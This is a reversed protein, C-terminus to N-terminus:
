FDNEYGPIRRTILDQAGRAEGTLGKIDLQLFVGNTYIDDGDSGLNGSRLRRVVVRFGWCCSDYQLGGFADLTRNREENLAYSWRGVAHWNAGLAWAFSLNAQEVDDRLAPIDRVLRYEVNVVSRPDPQYRLSVAGKRTRDTSSDYQVGARLRWQAAPRAELEAVLDSSRSTEPLADELTVKRDRFHHIRGISARAREAGREDLVRSTLAVALQNADGIRDGGLFRNGRFLQEFSIGPRITDFNPLENQREYPVLLYHLRPEITHTFSRGSLTVPRELFLGSDLSFSALTRTHEDDLHAEDDARDLRYGTFRLTAKPRVFAAATHYPFSVSPQLDVRTGATRVDHDFHAIEAELGLNAARNREARGTRFVARPIQAYPRDDSGITRDLTMLDQVRVLADWGDGLWTADFRRPLHSRRSQPVDESLDELYDEDSVWELRADTSLRDSWRHRHALDLATRDGDFQSDHALHEAVMRGFGLTRSLFRFEGRAQVGRNSMTRATVTADRNPALNFYYPVSVEAGSSGSTGFSPTIVGSKRESSLPFSFGPLRLLRVGMFEFSVDRATGVDNVRDFEVEGAIIRWDAEGPNCTTYSVDRTTMREEGVARMEAADGHGHEKELMYSRAGTFAIANEDIEARAGDSAIFVGEDWYEVNGTATIVNASEDYVIEDSRLQQSDRQVLANGTLRSVGDSSELRDATAVGVGPDAGPDAAAMAPREPVQYGSGCLMWDDDAGAAAGAFAAPALFALLLHRPTPRM